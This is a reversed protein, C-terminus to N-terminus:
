SIVLVMERGGRVSLHKSTGVVREIVLSKEVVETLFKQWQADDGVGFLPFAHMMHLEVRGQKEARSFLDRFSREVHEESVSASKITPFASSADVRAAVSVHVQKKGKVNWDIAAQAIARPYDYKYSNMYFKARSHMFKMRVRRADSSPPPTDKLARAKALGGLRGARVRVEHLSSRAISFKARFKKSSLGLVSAKVAAQNMTRGISRAFASFKSAVLRGAVGKHNASDKCFRRLKAIDARSWRKGAASAVVRRPVFVRRARVSSAFERSAMKSTLGLLSARMGTAKLTRGVSKAFAALKSHKVRGNAIHNKSDGYFGRLQALEDDTWSNRYAGKRVVADRPRVDTSPAIAIKGELIDRLESEDIGEVVYLKINGM